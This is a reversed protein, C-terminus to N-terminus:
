KYLGAQTEPAVNQAGVVAWCVRSMIYKRWQWALAVDHQRLLSTIIVDHARQSASEVSSSCIGPKILQLVPLPTHYMTKVQSADGKQSSNGYFM